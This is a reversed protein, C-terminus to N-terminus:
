GIMQFCESTQQLQFENSEKLEEIQKNKDEIDDNLTQFKLEMQIQIHQIDSAYQLKDTELEQIRKHLQENESKMKEYEDNTVGQNSPIDVYQLINESISTIVDSPNINNYHHVEGNQKREDLDDHNEEDDLNKESNKESKIMEQHQIVLYEIKSLTIDVEEENEKENSSNNPILAVLENILQFKRQSEKGYNRLVAKEAELKDIRSQLEELKSDESM